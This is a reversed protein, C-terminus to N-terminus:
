INRLRCAQKSKTTFAKMNRVGISELISNVEGAKKWIVINNLTGYKRWIKENQRYTSGICSYGLYASAHQGKEAVSFLKTELAIKEVSKLFEQKKM